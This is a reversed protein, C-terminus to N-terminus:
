RSSSEFFAKAKEWIGAEWLDSHGAGEVTWMETKNPALEYTRVGHSYGITTDATGHAVFVPEDVDLIWQDVRYQDLMIWEVPLFWYRDRAVSVASDFPTELLLAEANRESAVYTAPGSGLSRGWIVVPFGKNQAFAFAAISDKLVNEQNLLGPSAPFGRYDFALFGYGDAVFQEYRLHEEAFSSANGKFYVIVPKGAQPPAYWGRIRENGSTPIEVQEATELLTEGLDLFKGEPAYQFSRQFIYMYTGAGVYALVLAILVAFVIRRLWIM